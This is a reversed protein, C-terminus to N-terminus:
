LNFINPFFVFLSDLGIGYALGLSLKVLLLFRNQNKLSNLIGKIKEFPAFSCLSDNQCFLRIRLVLFLSSRLVTKVCHLTMGIILHVQVTKM